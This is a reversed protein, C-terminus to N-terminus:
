CYPNPPMRLLRLQDSFKKAKIIFSHPSLKLKSAEQFSGRELKFFHAKSLSKQM